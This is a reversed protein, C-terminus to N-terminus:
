KWDAKLEGFLARVARGIDRHHIHGRSWNAKGFYGKSRILKDLDPMTYNLERCRSRIQDLVQVGTPKYTKPLRRVGHRQAFATIRGWDRGPLRALLEDRDAAPYLRRILSLEKATFPPRAVVLGLTRARTRCAFYTRHPLAKVIAKYDPFLSRLLEDEAENWVKQGSMTYGERQVRSRQRAANAANRSHYSLTM